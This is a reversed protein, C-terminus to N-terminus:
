LTLLLQQACCVTSECGTTALVYHLLIIGEWWGRVCVCVGWLGGCGEVGV